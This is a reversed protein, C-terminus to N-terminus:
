GEMLHTVETFAAASAGVPELGVSVFVTGRVRSRFRWLAFQDMECDAFRRLLGLMTQFEEDSLPAGASLQKM